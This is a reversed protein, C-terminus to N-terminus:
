HSVRIYVMEPTLSLRLFCNIENIFCGWPSLRSMNRNLNEFLAGLRKLPKAESTSTPCTLSPVLSPLCFYFWIFSHPELSSLLGSSAAANQWLDLEKPTKATVRQCQMPTVRNWLQEMVSRKNQKKLPLPASMRCHQTVGSRHAPSRDGQHSRCLSLASLQSLTNLASTLNATRSTILVFLHNKKIKQFQLGRKYQYVLIFSEIGSM